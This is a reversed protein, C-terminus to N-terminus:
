ADAQARTWRRARMDITRRTFVLGDATPAVVDSYEGALLAGTGANIFYFNSTVRFTGGSGEEV